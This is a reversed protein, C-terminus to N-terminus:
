AVAGKPTKTMIARWFLVGLFAVVVIRLILGRTDRGYVKDHSTLWDPDSM